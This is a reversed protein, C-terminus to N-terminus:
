KIYHFQKTLLKGSTKKKPIVGYYCINSRFEILGGFNIYFYVPVCSMHICKTRIITVHHNLTPITLDSYVYM